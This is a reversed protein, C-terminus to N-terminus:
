AISFGTVDGGRSHLRMEHMKDITMLAAAPCLGVTSETM